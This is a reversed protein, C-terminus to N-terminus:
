RKMPSAGAAQARLLAARLSVAPSGVGMTSVVWSCLHGVEEGEGVGEGGSQVPQVLGLLGGVGPHGVVALLNRGGDVPEEGEDRGGDAAQGDDDDAHDLRRPLLAGAAVHDRGVRERGDFQRAQGGLQLLAPVGDAGGPVPERAGGAADSEGPGRVGALDGGDVAVPRAALLVRLAAHEALALRPPGTEAASDGRQRQALPCCGSVPGHAQVCGWSRCRLAQVSHGQM